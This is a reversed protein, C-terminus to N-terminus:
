SNWSDRTEGMGLFGLAIGLAPPQLQLIQQDRLHLPEGLVRQQEVTDDLAGLTFRPFDWPIGHM